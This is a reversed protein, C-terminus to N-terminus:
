FIVAKLIVNSQLTARSDFFLILGQKLLENIQIFDALLLQLKVRTKLFLAAEFAGFEGTTLFLSNRDSAGENLVRLDQDKVFRRRSQVLLTLLNYLLRQVSGHFSTSRDNDGMPHRCNLLTIPDNYHVLTFYNLITCKLFERVLRITVKGFEFCTNRSSFSDLNSNQFINFLQIQWKFNM